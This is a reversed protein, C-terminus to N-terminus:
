SEIKDFIGKINEELNEYAEGAKMRDETETMEGIVGEDNTIKVDTVTEDTDKIMNQIKERMEENLETGDKMTVGVASSNDYTIIKADKIEDMQTLSDSFQQNRVIMTEYDVESEQENEKDGENQETTKSDETNKKDSKEQDCASISLLVMVAIAVTAIKKLNKKM